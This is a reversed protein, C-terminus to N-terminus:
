KLKLLKRLDELHYKIAKLEGETLEDQKSKIGEERIADVMSQLIGMTFLRHPIELSPEPLSSGEEIDKFVMEMPKVVSIKGDAKELYFWMAFRHFEPQYDLKVKM